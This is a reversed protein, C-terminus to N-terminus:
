ESYDRNFDLVVSHVYGNRLVKVLATRKGRDLRSLARYTERLEDLSNIQKGDIEVIIDGARLGSAAANGPRKVGLLYAGRRRFYALGPARFRDIARATCNWMELEYGEEPLSPKERPVLSIEMNAGARRLLLTAPEGAPLYAFRCRLAPLDELYLATVEDGNVALILDGARIGAEAAPSGEDVSAVVVGSEYDLVTDSLFDKLPQFHLGTYARIVRGQAELQAVLERVTNSPIAFGINEGRAARLTNIGIVRGRDDVLPGGSNGPNIAADTQIWLHYRGVPLYRRASSVIGFSISRTFGFPSGLAMVFQGETLRDSDGFEATPLPPHDPPLELRLLAIDVEEDLGVVGAKFRRRDSLVCTIETANRAVHSNTVVLGDPSIIVGSAFGWTRTREGTGLQQKVPRLFVLAPFVRAQARRIAARFDDGARAALGSAACGCASGVTAAAALLVLLRRRAGRM